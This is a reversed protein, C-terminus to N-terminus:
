ILINVALEAYFDAVEEITFDSQGDWWEAVRMGMAGIAATALWPKSVSFVGMQKGRDVLDLLMQEAERRIALVAKQHEPSLGGMERNAVRALLSHEAHLQVHARVLARVQDAPDPGSDLLARKLRDRHEQHGLFMLDALLQEKSEFHAYMSSARVGAAQAIERVSVGHYGREGFLVLAAEQLRRVTGDSTARSPLLGPADHPVSSGPRSMAMEM